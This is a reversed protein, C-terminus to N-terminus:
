KRSTKANIILIDLKGFKRVALGVCKKYRIFGESAIATGKTKKIEKVAAEVADGLFGTVVANAGETGFKKSIAM